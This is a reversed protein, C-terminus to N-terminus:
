KSFCLPFYSYHVSMLGMLSCIQEEWSIWGDMNEPDHPLQHRDGDTLFAPASQVLWPNPSTCFYKQQVIYQRQQRNRSDAFVFVKSQQLVEPVIIAPKKKIFTTTLNNVQPPILHPYQHFLPPIYLYFVTFPVSIFILSSVSPACNMNACQNFSLHVWTGACYFILLIVKLYLCFCVQLMCFSGFFVFFFYTMDTCTWRWCFPLLSPTIWTM